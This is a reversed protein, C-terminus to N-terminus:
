AVSRTTATVSAYLRFLHAAIKEEDQEFNVGYADEVARDLTGHARVLALPMLEPAYLDALSCGDCADRADLVAQAAAVIRRRQPGTDQPWIFTNYVIDRGYRYDSKLRGALRRMWVAHVLSSLVGFEFLTANPILQIQDSLIVGAHIFGIPIYKRRESSIRPIALCDVDMPQPRQAFLAPTDGYKRTTAASSALRFDRVLRVRDTLIRSDRIDRPSAEELWLCYREKNNLLEVGGVYPRVFRGLQPEAALIEDREEPSLVFHGGDRPMNGNVMRPVDCLPVTTPHVFVTPADVLYPNITSAATRVDHSDFIFKQSRGNRSFGVIVCHVHAKGRAESDWVFTQHAFDISIGRREILHHWLIAVHVGQAISNTSVFAVSTSSHQIYDAAKLYWAAVYDLDFNDELDHAVAVLEEKQGASMMRAGSFPPNGLIYDCDEPKLLETWDMTLASGNVIQHYDTLPLNRYFTGFVEGTRRNAQHDALWIAVNAIQCPFDLLEIGYFQGVNVKVLAAIDMVTQGNWYAELVQDELHRLEKYTTSLFNGSGCAPDFFTLRAIKEHFRKLKYKDNKIAVFEAYLDDLFLPRILRRINEESTYHAGESRRQETDMVGQFISGFISPSIDRWDLQSCKWFALRMDSDCSVQPIHESFVGGNVYPLSKLDQPITTMRQDEPTDLIEFIMGITQGMDAGNPESHELVYKSFQAHEFIGTDEAFFCFLLRVLFVELRHGVYGAAEILDHLRALEACAKVSAEAQEQDWRLSDDDLRIFDFLEINDPLAALDFERQEGTEHDYLKMHAFDSVIVHRPVQERPLTDLYGVAQEYAAELSRGASKQECILKGPWFVDIYGNSGDDYRVRNEFRAFHRRELDFIRFFHEWFSQSEQRENTVGAWENAFAQARARAETTSVTM